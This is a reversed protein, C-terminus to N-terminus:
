VSCASDIRVEAFEITGSNDADLMEFDANLIEDSVHEHAQSSSFTRCAMKFKQLSLRETGLDQGASWEDAHKFHVWLISLVFLHVLYERFSAVGVIQQEANDPNPKSAIAFAIRLISESSVIAQWFSGDKAKRHIWSQIMEFTIVLQTCATSPTLVLLSFYMKHPSVETVM